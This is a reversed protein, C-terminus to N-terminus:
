KRKLFATKAASQCSTFNKIENLDVLTKKGSIADDIGIANCSQLISRVQRLAVKNLM